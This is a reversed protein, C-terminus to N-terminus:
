DAFIYRDQSILHKSSFKVSVIVGEFAARSKDVLLVYQLRMRLLPLLELSM